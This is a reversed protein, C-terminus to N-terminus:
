QAQWRLDTGIRIVEQVLVDFDDRRSRHNAVAVHLYKKGRITSVSPM